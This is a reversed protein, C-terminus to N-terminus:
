FMGYTQKLMEAAFTAAITPKGCHQGKDLVAMYHQKAKKHIGKVFMVPFPVGHLFLVHNALLRAMRGNGDGYPHIYLFKNFIHGIILFMTPNIGLPIRHELKEVM